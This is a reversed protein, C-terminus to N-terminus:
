AAPHAAPATHATPMVKIHATVWKRMQEFRQQGARENPKSRLQMHREYGRMPGCIEVNVYVWEDAVIEDNLYMIEAALAEAVEFASAVSDRDDPDIRTMDMGRARGLAGLTCFEVDASVLSNAALTKEPLADLAEVIERLVAQGRKGRIASTVAGRWRILAWGDCDDSYGSRSM